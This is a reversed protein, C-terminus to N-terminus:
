GGERVGRGRNQKKNSNECFNRLECEGQGTGRGRIIKKQMKM